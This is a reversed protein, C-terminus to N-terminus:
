YLDIEALIPFHDSPYAGNIKDTIVRCSKGSGREALFLIHDIPLEGATDAKYYGHFTGIGDADPSVAMSDVFGGDILTKYAVTNNKCNFDGTIVAPLGPAYAATKELLLAASRNRSIVSLHDWHSNFVAFSFGSKKETLVAWSCIRNYRSAWTRSPEEPTDSFWFTGGTELAYKETRYFVPSFEGATEEKDRGRGVFAYEPMAAAIREVWDLDAEQLCFVDPMANRLNAIVGPARKEHSHILDDVVYVNYSMVTLAHPEAGAPPPLPTQAPVGPLLGFLALFAAFLKQFIQVM